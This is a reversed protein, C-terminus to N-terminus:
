EDDRAQRTGRQFAAMTDRAQEPPREESVTPTNVEAALQPALNAQRRRRPLPPRGDTPTVTQAHRPGTSPPEVAEERPWDVPAKPPAPEFLSRGSADTEDGYTGGDGGYGGAPVGNGNSVGNGGFAGSASPLRPRPTRLSAIDTVESANEANDDDIREVPAILNQRILVIARTGGYASEALTVSIGHRAALRAVVFLGLRADGSLSMVEFDPTEHLSENIREREEKTIGLGQDEVEVVIGTGVVNGRVEVRSEPPSFSTANDVLEALLHVLDAVVAGVMSVAPLRGTRVRAYDETEAVASRVVEMLPVPNRWQRGPQQGGLIILNEANRRSRTALHDLKFLLELQDPDEERREAQDLVELQRHVVVQSRHAINLFVANVGARTKAEQAAAATATRQAKNFADAVQGIEDRGFDLTTLDGSVDVQRGERLRNVMMPLAEDAITLTQQRLRKLRNVLKNSLRVAILLALATVVLIAGGGLLSNIQTRQGSAVITANANGHQKGWLDALSTTVQHAANQWDATAVPISRTDRSTASPRPGRDILTNEVTVVKQWADSKTLAVLDSKSQDPLRDTIQELLAHYGEVHHRFARWEDVTLGGGTIGAIGISNATSMEDAAVGIDASLSEDVAASSDPSTRALEPMALALVGTIGSYYNAVDLESVQNADAKKRLDPMQGLFQGLVPMVKAMGTPNLTVVQDAIQSIQAVTQDTAARTQGLQSAAQPDGAMALMTVRREERLNNLFVISPPIVERLKSAYDKASTGQVVLYSAGGVGLALLALCPILAIM